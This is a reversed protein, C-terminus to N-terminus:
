PVTEVFAKAASVVGSWDEPTEGRRLVAAPAQSDLHSNTGFFWAQAAEPGYAEVLYRAAQYASRLRFVPLSRPQVKGAAWQGVIKADTVGSLYATVRQGLNKQLYSAVETISATVAQREIIERWTLGSGGMVPRIVAEPIGRKRPLPRAGSGRRSKGPNLVVNKKLEVAM